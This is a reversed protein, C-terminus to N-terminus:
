GLFFPSDSDTTIERYITPNSAVYRIEHLDADKGKFDKYVGGAERILVIGAAHDWQKGSGGPATYLDLKGSAVMAYKYCSAVVDMPWANRRLYEFFVRSKEITEPKAGYSSAFFAENLQRSSVSMREGNMFAGEGKEAMYLEDRVFDYIIGILVENDEVYALACTAFPLGRVYCNTGDIPDTLWYRKSSKEYGLEEGYFDVDFHTTLQKKLETEVAIDIDTVFDRAHAKHFKIGITGFGSLLLDRQDLVLRAAKQAHESFHGPIQLTDSSM